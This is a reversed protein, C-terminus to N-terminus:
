FMEEIGVLWRFAWRDEDELPSSVWLPFDAQVPGFRLGIGADSRIEEDFLGNLDQSLDGADAFLLLNWPLALEFNLSVVALDRLHQGAYGRVNGDGEIHWHEQPSFTGKEDVVLDGLPADKLGGSFFIQEHAPLTGDAYGGYLRLSPVVRYRLRYSGKLALSGRIFREGGADEWEGGRVKGILDGKWRHHQKRMEISLDAARVHGPSWDRDDRYEMDWISSHDAGVTLVWEDPVLLGRSHRWEVSGRVESGGNEESGSLGIRTWVGFPRFSSQYSVETGFRESRIGYSLSASWQHRGRIRGIDILRGGRIWVEPTLGDVDDFSCWPGYFVQYSDLSPLDFFPRIEIKRPYFNNWRDIDLYRHEADIVVSRVKGKSGFVFTNTSDERGYWWGKLEEGDDTYAVVEVPVEIEGKRVVLVRTLYGKSTEEVTVSGIAYDCTKTTNLWQYFFPALWEGTEDEALRVFDETSPHRFRYQECYTRMLQDFRKEGVMGRLMEMTWSGKNYPAAVYALMDHYAWSPQLVPEDWEMSAYIHYPFTELWRDDLAPLWQCLGPPWRTLNGHRGYHTEMYRVESFTNMGEDLWAEDMENSGVMGYFWQHGIEHVVVLELLRLFPIESMTIIVLQPYEMGGGGGAGGSFGDVVTLNDYVYPGYWGSWAALANAAYTGVDRWGKENGPRVLVWITTGEWTSKRVLFDPDAAWAFDHVNEAHFHLTKSSGTHEREKRVVGDDLQALSEMWARESEPEVLVGTAGVVMEDPLTIWVDFTGYEGYFEGLLHYGDPHWGVDDYVVMKPYWQTIEYHDSRHGM